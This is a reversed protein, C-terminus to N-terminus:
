TESTEPNSQCPSGEGAIVGAERVRVSRTRGRIRPNLMRDASRPSRRARAFWLEVYRCVRVLGACWQASKRLSAGDEDASGGVGGANATAQMSFHHRVSPREFLLSEGRRPPRARLRGGGVRPRLRAAARSTAPPSSPPLTRLGSRGRGAGAEVAPPGGTRTTQPLPRSTSVVELALGPHAPRVRLQPDLVRRLRQDTFGGTDAYQERVRRGTETRLSLSDTEAFLGPNM